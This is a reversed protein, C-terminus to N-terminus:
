EGSRTAPRTREDLEDPTLLHADNWAGAETWGDEVGLGYAGRVLVTLLILFVAFAIAEFM